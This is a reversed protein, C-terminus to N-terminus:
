APGGNYEQTAPAGGACLFPSGAHALSQSVRQRPQRAAGNVDHVEEGLRKAGARRLRRSAATGLEARASTSIRIIDSM